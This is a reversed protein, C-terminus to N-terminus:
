RKRLRLAYKASLSEEVNDSHATRSTHRRDIKEMYKSAM